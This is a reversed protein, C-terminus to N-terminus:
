TTEPIHRWSKGTAAESIVSINTHYADALAQCTALRKRRMVRIVRVAVDNLKAHPHGNGRPPKARGKALMDHINDRQTGLFLHDPNICARVDCKHLVSLGEPIPGRWFEWALRHTQVQNGNRWLAGYGTNFKLGTWLLCGAEDLKSRERLVAELQATTRRVAGNCRTM